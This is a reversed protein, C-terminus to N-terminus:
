AEEMDRLSAQRREVSLGGSSSACGDQKKLVIKIGDGSGTRMELLRRVEKGLWSTDRLCM